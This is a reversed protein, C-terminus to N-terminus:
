SPFWTGSHVLVELVRLLGDVGDSKRVLLDIHAEARVTESIENDYMTFLVIRANPAAHKILPSATLGNMGPMRLDLLVLDPQLDKAQQIADLGTLAEGCVQLGEKTEILTHMVTRVVANDDAILIRTVPLPSSIAPSASAM